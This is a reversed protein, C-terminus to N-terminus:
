KMADAGAKAVVGDQDAAVGSVGIGGIIKGDVVIPVGGEVMSADRLNMVRLGAGGKAVIDEFVKTPRRYIAASKGKDIAVQISATQTNDMKEYAVLNGATDLVAIAVPWNNKRAEAQGAAIARKAQELNINNGYQPVQAQAAFSLAVAAIALLIKKM